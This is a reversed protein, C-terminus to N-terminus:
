PKHLRYFQITDMANTVTFKSDVVVPPYPPVMIWPVGNLRNTGELHYGAAATTWDLRAKSPDARTANLVPRCNGGTVSLAYEGGAGPTIENVTVVFLQNAAVNLSCVRPTLSGSTSSGCDALYNACLNVPNFSGLYAASFVDDGLAGTLSVTICAAAPGNRFTHANYSRNLGDQM